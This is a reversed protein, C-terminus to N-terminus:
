GCSAQVLSVPTSCLEHDPHLQSPMDVPSEVIEVSSQSELNLASSNFRAAQFLLCLRPDQRLLTSDPFHKELFTLLGQLTQFRWYARQVPYGYQNVEAIQLQFRDRSHTSGNLYVIQHQFRKPPQCM